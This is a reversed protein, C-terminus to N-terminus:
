SGCLTFIFVQGYKSLIVLGEIAIMLIHVYGGGNQCSHSTQSNLLVKMTYSFFWLLNKMEVSNKYGGGLDTYLETSSVTM